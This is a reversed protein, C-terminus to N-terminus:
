IQQNQIIEQIDVMYANLEEMQKIEDVFSSLQPNSVLFTVIDIIKEKNNAKIYSKIALIYDGAEYYREAELFAKHQLRNKRIYYTGSVGGILVIFGIAGYMLYPPPASLTTVSLVTQNNTNGAKDTISISFTYNTSPQLNDILIVHNLLLSANPISVEANGPTRYTVLTTSLENTRFTINISTDTIVQNLSNAIILPPTLDRGIYLIFEGIRTGILLDTINDNNINLSNVSTIQGTSITEIRSVTGNAINITLIHGTSSLAILDLISDGNFEGELVHDIYLGADSWHITGTALNLSTFRGNTESSYLINGFLFLSDYNLNSFIGIPLKSATVTSYVVLSDNYGFAAVYQDNIALAIVQQGLSINASFIKQTLNYAYITGNGDGTVFYNNFSKLVTMYTNNFTLDKILNGTTSNIWIIQGADSIAVCTESNLPRIDSIALNSFSHIWLVSDMFTFSFISGNSLSAIFNDSALQRVAWIYASNRNLGFSDNALLDISQSAKNLYFSEIHTMYTVLVSYSTSTENFTIINIIPESEKEILQKGSQNPYSFIYNTNTSLGQQTFVTFLMTLALALILLKAKM